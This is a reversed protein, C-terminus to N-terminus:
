WTLYRLVFANDRRALYKRLEDGFLIVLAFPVPLLWHWLQLPQTQFFVNAAPVYSIIAVLCLEVAIGAWILPNNRAHIISQRRTRCILVDAVQCVIISMFFATIATHYVVTDPTAGWTWGGRVLIFFFAFFGAMAQIMGIIGYSMFLLKGSMLRESRSRPRNRMVDSEPKEVGLAIAPLLDTGLDIALILPVTIALPLQWLAFAIFPMIEPINSTLIYAIFKKINEFVTRGEEVANVITAFNDDLLVMDAAERAVETGSLGMAVGMDANKLAPADNVGDGTVTVVEGNAQLAKVIRLKQEPRARAFVLGDEALIRRLREEPMADLDESRIVRGSKPLILGVQRAIAEATTGHDGTIMIVRIGASRCKALADPIENRPPDMLGILGVYTFGEESSKETRTQKVGLALVREGRAALREYVAMIEKRDKVTLARKKRGSQISDCMSVVKEPAGKLFALMREKDKSTVIMRRTKSDFPSEHVRPLQRYAHKGAFALLATETPDGVLHGEQERANNCLAMIDRAMSFAPERGLKPSYAHFEETGLCLTTVTMKNQTITGTKDTCIVTTSGLTEVSDLNKILANRKAMRKAAISLCLTVTPLLGEPVNAVIIGIAFIISGILQQGLLVSVLFFTVGLGIAMASIIRIFHHLEKRLPSDVSGTERTMRVIKGIETDMGTGYIIAKGNGTQVSTGSFVMNRSELINEHTCVLKRLEPESEGTIPSLDIKMANQELLRGDAPIAMGENLLVIDGPVIDRSAVEKQKGSRLVTVMKPLMRAFSEMIRESQYEQIFTFTANLLVVVALAYGIYINGQGPDLREAVFALAAGGILLLAFFNTFQSLFKILPGAKGKSSLVNPGYQQLRAKAEQESLGDQTTDLRRLLEKIPIRHEDSLPVKDVEGATSQASYQGM